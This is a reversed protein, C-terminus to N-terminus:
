QNNLHKLMATMQHLVDIHPQTELPAQSFYHNSVFPAGIKREFKFPAPALPQGLDETWISLGTTDFQRKKGDVSKYQAQILQSLADLHPNLVALPADSEFDVQSLYAKKAAPVVFGFDKQIWDSIEILFETSDDTTALTDANWGDSYLSFGVVVPTGKSNIFTGAKFTLAKQEDVDLANKPARAFQYREKLSELVPQISLGRPNLLSLDFLWISRALGVYLIKM